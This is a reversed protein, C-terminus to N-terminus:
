ILFGVLLMLATLVVTVVGLQRLDKIIYRYERNWDVGASAPVSAAQDEGPTPQVQVARSRPTPTRAGRSSRTTRTTRRRNTAM